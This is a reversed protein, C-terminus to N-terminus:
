ECEAYADSHVKVKVKGRSDSSLVLPIAMCRNKSVRLEVKALRGSIINIKEIRVMEINPLTAVFSIVAKAAAASQQLPTQFGQAFSSLSATLALLAIVQKM